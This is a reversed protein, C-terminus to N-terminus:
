QKQGSDWRVVRRTRGGLTSDPSKGPRGTILAEQEWQLPQPNLGKTARTTPSSFDRLGPLTAFFLCFVEMFLLVLFGWLFGM